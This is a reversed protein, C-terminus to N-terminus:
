RGQAPLGRHRLRRDDRRAPDPHVHVSRRATLHRIRRSLRARGAARADSRTRQASTTTPCASSRSRAASMSRVDYIGGGPQPRAAPRGLRRDCALAATRARTDANGASPQFASMRGGGRDRLLADSRARSRLLHVHSGGGRRLADRRGPQRRLGLAGPSAASAHVFYSPARQAVLPLEACSGSRRAPCRKARGSSRRRRRRRQLLRRATRDGRRSQGQDRDRRRARLADRARGRRGCRCRLRRLRRAACAHRRRQARAHALCADLAEINAHIDSLLAIRVPNAPALRQPDTASSTLLRLRRRPRLSFGRGDRRPRSPNGRGFAPLRRDTRRNTPTCTSTRATRAPLDLGIVFTMLAVIIPYWLGYYIDGKAAVLATALLPLMGGFWGNGIHYPLSM